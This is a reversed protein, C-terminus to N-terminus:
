RRSFHKVPHQPHLDQQLVAQAAAETLGGLQDHHQNRATMVASTALESVSRNALALTDASRAESKVGSRAARSWPKTCREGTADEHLFASYDVYTMTLKAEKDM